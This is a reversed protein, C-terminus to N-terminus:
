RPLWGGRSVASTRVAKVSQSVPDFPRLELTGDPSQSIRLKELTRWLDYAVLTGGADTGVPITVPFSPANLANSGVLRGRGADSWSFTMPLEGRLFFLRTFTTVGAGQPISGVIRYGRIPGMNSILQTWEDRYEKIHSAGSDGLARPYASTDRDILAELHNATRSNALALLEPTVTVNVPRLLNVADQGDPAAWLFAGDSILNLTSGGTLSYSGSIKSQVAESPRSLDAITKVTDAGLIIKEIDGQIYQRMSRGNADRANSTIIVVADEDIYRFFAGNFGLETDGGHEVLTTKRPTKTVFLGYAYSDGEYGTPVQPSIYKAYTATNLVKGRRLARDWSYLDAATTLLDGSGFIRWNRPWMKPSGNDNIGLYAHAVNKMSSAESWFGSHTMGAPTFLMSHMYQEYPIGAVRQVIAAVIGYADSSYRWKVGPAGTLPLSMLNAIAEDLSAAAFDETTGGRIGGTHTLLQQLTIVRKDAPLNPFYKGLTDSLSLRGESELKLMAAAAFQKSMSAVGVATTPTMRIAGARDSFGYARHLLIQGGKAVLVQGSFGLEAARKVHRDIRQGLAGNVQEPLEQAELGSASLALMTSFALALFVSALNNRSRM